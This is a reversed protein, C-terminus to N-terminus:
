RLVAQRPTDGHALRCHYHVQGQFRFSGSLRFGNVTEFSGPDPIESEHIVFNWVKSFIHAREERFIAEDTYIRNDIFHTPPLGPVKELTIKDTVVQV